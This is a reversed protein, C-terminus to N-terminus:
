SVKIQYPFTRRSKGKCYTMAKEARHMLRDATTGYYYALACCIEEVDEFGMTYCLFLILGDEGCSKLRWELEAIVQCAREFPAQGSIKRKKGPTYGTERHESPWEGLRLQFSHRLIWKIHDVEFSEAEKPSYWEKM